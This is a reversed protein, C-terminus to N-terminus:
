KETQRIFLTIFKEFSVESKTISGINNYNCGIIQPPPYFCKNPVGQIGM